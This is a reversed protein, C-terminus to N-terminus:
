VVSRALLPGVVLGAPPMGYSITGFHETADLSRESDSVAERGQGSRRAERGPM